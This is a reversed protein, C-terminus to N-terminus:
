FLRLKAMLIGRRSVNSHHSSATLAVMGKMHEHPTM